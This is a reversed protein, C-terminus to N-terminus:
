PALVVPIRVQHPPTGTGAADDDHVLITGAQAEDVEFPVAVSFDGRCGTGCTATTFTRALENGAADLIVVTVNAEFVNANGSVTVPSSVREGRKPSEVVIVPMLQEYDARSVPHDLVIGEGSFVDVPRGDLEFRVGEVTPFQTLTYVVQALRVTMSLSGGGSEFESSLNVYAVGGDISLGLLRTGAPIATDIGPEQPGRLLIELAATGLRPTAQVTAHTRYLGEGETFWVELERLNESGETETPENPDVTEVVTESGGSGPATPTPGAVQAGEQTGCSAAGFGVLGAIVTSLIVIVYRV